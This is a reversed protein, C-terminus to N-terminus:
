PLVARLRPAPPKARRVWGWAASSLFYHRLVQPRASGSPATMKACSGGFWGIITPGVMTAGAFAEVPMTATAIAAGAECEAATAIRPVTPLIPFRRQRPPTAAARRAIATAAGDPAIIMRAHPRLTTKPRGNIKRM